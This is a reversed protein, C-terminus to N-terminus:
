KMAEQLMLINNTIADFRKRSLVVNLDFDLKHSVKTYGPGFDLDFGYYGLIFAASSDHSRVVKFGKYYLLESPHNMGLLHICMPDENTEVEQRVENFIAIRCLSRRLTANPVVTRGTLPFDLRCSLGITSVGAVHSCRNFCSMIEGMTQGHITIAIKLDKAGDHRHFEESFTEVKRFTKEGDRLHEPAMVEQAGVQLALDILQKPTYIDDGLEYSSNDLTIFDGARAREIYFKRYTEDKEVLHALILHYRSKIVFDNLYRTPCIIGLDM